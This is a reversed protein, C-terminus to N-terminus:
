RRWDIIEGVARPAGFLEIEHRLIAAARARFRPVAEPFLVRYEDVLPAGSFLRPARALAAAAARVAAADIRPAPAPRSLKEGVRRAVVRLLDRPEAVRLLSKAYALDVRAM